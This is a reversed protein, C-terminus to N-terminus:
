FHHSECWEDEESNRTDDGTVIMGTGEDITTGLWAATEAGIGTVPRMEM